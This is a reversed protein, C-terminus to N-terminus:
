KKSILNVIWHVDEMSLVQLLFLGCFFLLFFALAALIPNSVFGAAKVCVIVAAISLLPIYYPIQFGTIRCLLRISLCFNLAHSLVFSFFYASMGYHPLLLFLLVVDMSSTLINYRVCIKQQGLGKTMADTIADCYLMPTVLTYLKLYHVAEQNHYLKMCLPEALLFLLGAFTLGYLLATKLSRKVLYQIRGRNGAASCRAMEPILLEALGFLICAPFMMIPFVMGMVIGFAALPNQIGPYLALRKPVLLNEATSIGSRIIDAIALPVAAQLLRHAIPIATGQFNNERLRLTILCLVTAVAGASSGMVVSICARGADHGAWLTLLLMTILMSCFQEAIEVIALTGIRQAATFYGTLVGSLCVLPLSIACLRLAGVTQLSGIWYQALAPAFLYFLVAVTGSCLGSYLFCASLIHQINQPRGKGLEEASLYMTATRIGGIGAIMALSNVSLVLQLLGIGEAGIRGSLYVQFTTGVLRLLLNVATLLLASYFIPLKKHLSIGGQGCHIRVPLPFFLPPM